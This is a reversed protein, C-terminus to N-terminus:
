GGCGAYVLALELWSLSSCKSLEIETLISDGIGSECECLM